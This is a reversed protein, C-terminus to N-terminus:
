QEYYALSCRISKERPSKVASLVLYRKGEHSVSCGVSVPVSDPFLVHAAVAFSAGGPDNQYSGSSVSLVGSFAGLPAEEPSFLDLAVGATALVDRCGAAM